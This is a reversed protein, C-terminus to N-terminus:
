RQTRTHPSAISTHAKPTCFRLTPDTMAGLLCSWRSHSSHPMHMSMQGTPASVEPAYLYLVRGQSIFCTPVVHVCQASPQLVVKPTRRASVPMSITRPSLRSLLPILPSTRQM